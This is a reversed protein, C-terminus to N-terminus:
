KLDIGRKHVRNALKEAEINKNTALYLKYLSLAIHELNSNLIDPSLVARRLASELLDIAKGYYIIAEESGLKNWLVWAHNNYLTVVSLLCENDQELGFDVVIDLAKSSYEIAGNPNYSDIAFAMKQYALFLIIWDEKTRCRNKLARICDDTYKVVLQNTAGLEDQSKQAMNICAEALANLGDGTAVFGVKEFNSYEDYAAKWYKYSSAQDGMEIYTKAIKVNTVTISELVDIGAKKAEELKNLLQKNLVIAEKYSFERYAFTAQQALSTIEEKIIRDAQRDVSFGKEGIAKHFFLQLDNYLFKYSIYKEDLDCLDYVSVYYEETEKDGYYVDYLDGLEYRLFYSQRSASYLTKGKKERIQLYRRESPNTSDFYELYYTMGDKDFKAGMRKGYNRTDNEIDAIEIVKKDVSQDLSLFFEFFDSHRAEYLSEYTEITTLDLVEDFNTYEESKKYNEEDLVDFLDGDSSYITEVYYRIGSEDSVVALGSFSYDMPGMGCKDATVKKSILKYDHSLRKEEVCFADSSNTITASPMDPSVKLLPYKASELWENLEDVSKGDVIALYIINSRSDARNLLPMGNLSLAHQTQSLNLGIAFCIALIYDRETTKKDGRLLKYLYDQSLGSKIAINKRSVKHEAIMQDMFMRFDDPYNRKNDENILMAAESGRGHKFLNVLENHDVM